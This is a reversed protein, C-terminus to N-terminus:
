AVTNIFPKGVCVQTGMNKKRSVLTPFSWSISQHVNDYWVGSGCYRRWCLQRYPRVCYVQEANPNTMKQFKQVGAANVAHHRLFPRKPTLSHIEFAAKPKALGITPHLALDRMILWWKHLFLVTM